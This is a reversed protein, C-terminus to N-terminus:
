LTNKVQRWKNAGYTSARESGFLPRRPMIADGDSTGGGGLVTSRRAHGRRRAMALSADLEENDDSPPRSTSDMWGAGRRWLSPRARHRAVEDDSMGHERVSADPMSARRRLFRRPVGFSELDHTQRLPTGPDAR